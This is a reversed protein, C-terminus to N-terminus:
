WWDARTQGKAKAIIAPARMEENRAGGYMSRQLSFTLAARSRLRDSCKNYSGTERARSEWGSSPSRRVPLPHSRMKWCKKSPYLFRPFFALSSFVPTNNICQGPRQSAAVIWWLQWLCRSSQFSCFLQSTVNTDLCREKKRERENVRLGSHIKKLPANHERIELLLWDPPIHHTAPLNQRPPTETCVHLTTNDIEVCEGVTQQPKCAKGIHRFRVSMISILQVETSFCVNSVCCLYM